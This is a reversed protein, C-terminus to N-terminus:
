LLYSCSYLVEGVYYSLRLQALGPPEPGQEGAMAVKAGAEVLGGLATSAVAMGIVKLSCM